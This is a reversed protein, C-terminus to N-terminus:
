QAPVPTRHYFVKDSKVIRRQMETAQSLMWARYRNYEEGTMEAVLKYGQQGGAIKGESFSVLARVRRKFAETKPQGESELIADATMWDKGRLFSVLWAVELESPQPKPTILDLQTTM